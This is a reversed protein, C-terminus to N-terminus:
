RDAGEAARATAAPWHAAVAFGGDPRPGVVLCGGTSAARERMGILGVRGGPRGAGGAADGGDDTVAVRLGDADDYTVTVRARAGAAHRTVNTMSEQVIRYAALAVPRAVRGPPVTVRLEVPTGALETSRALAALDTLGPLPRLPSREDGARLVRVMANLEDLVAGSVGRVVEFAERALDPRSDIVQGAMGAQVNITAMAHAVTDHLDRAIRLREEALRREEDRQRAQTRLRTREEQALRRERVGRVADAAFVAAAAWGVFALDVVGPGGDVLAGAAVVVVATGAAFGYALRRSRVSGLGYLVVLGALLVPGDPYHRGTYLLLTVAVAGAAQVPWRWSGAVAACAGAVALHALADVAREGDDPRVKTTGVVVLVTGCLWLGVRWLRVLACRQLSLM